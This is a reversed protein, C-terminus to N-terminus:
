RADRVTVPGFLDAGDLYIRLTYASLGTMSYVEEVPVLFRAAGYPALTLPKVGASPHFRSGPRKELSGATMEFALRESYVIEGAPTGVVNPMELPRSTLNELAVRVVDAGEVEILSVDFRVDLFLQVSARAELPARCGASARFSGDRASRLLWIAPADDVFLSDMAPNGGRWETALREAHLGAPHLVEDVAIEVRYWSADREAPMVNSARGIVVVDSEQVVDPLPRVYAGGFPPAALVSSLYLVDLLHVNV